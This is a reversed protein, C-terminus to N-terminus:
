GQAANNDSNEESDTQLPEGYLTPEFLQIESARKKSKDLFQNIQASSKILDGFQGTEDSMVQLTADIFAMLHNYYDQDNKIEPMPSLADALYINELADEYITTLREWQFLSGLSNFAAGLGPSIVAILILFGILTEDGEGSIVGVLAAAAGGLFALFARIFNVQAAARRNREIRSLYYSQQDKLAFQDFIENLIEMRERSPTNTRFSGTSTASSPSLPQPRPTAQENNPMNPTDM